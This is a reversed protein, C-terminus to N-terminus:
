ASANEYIATDWGGKGSLMWEQSINYVSGNYDYTIGILLWTREGAVPPAKPPNGIKGVSNLQNPKPPTNQTINYRYVPKPVLYSVIGDNIKTILEQL